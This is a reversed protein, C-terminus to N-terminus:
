PRKALRGVGILARTAPRRRSMATGSPAPHAVRWGGAVIAVGVVIAVVLVALLGAPLDSPLPIPDIILM